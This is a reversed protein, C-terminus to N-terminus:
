PASRKTKLSIVLAVMFIILLLVIPGYILFSAKPYLMVGWFEIAAMFLWGSISQGHSDKSCEIFHLILFTIVLIIGIYLAINEM